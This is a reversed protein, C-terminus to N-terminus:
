EALTAAIRKPDFRTLTGSKASSVWVSGLGFAIRGGGEGTFQQVLKEKEAAPSIRNIPFGPISVWVSGEGFAMGGVANPIGLDITATVKNTKPDVRVVKGEKRTLVWISSEGSALAFPEAPVDIRKEVLGTRPDVRLLKPEGPCTVWLASEAFLITSCAAPLRTEGVITNEKPDIRQLSTKGDALLWVSDDSAAIANPATPQGTEIEALIKASPAPDKGAAVETGPADPKVDGSAKAGPPRGGKIEIKEVLSTGCAITWVFGFGIILGACAKEMKVVPLQEAPKNTKADIRHIGSANAVLATDTFAIGTPPSDLPIEADSKLSAYPIQVGPTKVGYQPAKANKNDAGGAAATICAAALLSKIVSHKFNM